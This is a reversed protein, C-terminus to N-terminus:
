KAGTPQCSIEGKGKDKLYACEVKEPPQGGNRTEDQLWLGNVKSICPCASILQELKGGQKVLRAHDSFYKHARLVFWVALVVLAIIGILEPTLKSLAWELSTKELFTAFM